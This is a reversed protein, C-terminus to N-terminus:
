IMSRLRLTARKHAALTEAIETDHGDIGLQSLWWSTVREQTELWDRFRDREAAKATDEPSMWELATTGLTSQVSSCDSFRRM